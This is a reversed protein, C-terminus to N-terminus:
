WVRLSTQLAKADNELIAIKMWMTPQIPMTM